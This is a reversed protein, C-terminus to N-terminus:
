LRGWLCIPLFPHHQEGVLAKKGSWNCISAGGKVWPHKQTWPIVKQDSSWMYVIPVWFFHRFWDLRGWLCIPLFPHHQEGVLAKKGSWNCISAGGKVWPHKQTWPIVKQDSSWM